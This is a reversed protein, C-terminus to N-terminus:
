LRTIRMGTILRPSPLEARCVRHGIRYALGRGGRGAPVIGPTCAGAGWAFGGRQAGWPATSTAPWEVKIVQAGLAGLWFTAWPGARVWTFDLARIGALAQPPAVAESQTPAM